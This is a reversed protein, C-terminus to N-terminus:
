CMQPERGEVGALLQRQIVAKLKSSGNMPIQQIVFEPRKGGNVRPHTRASDAIINRQLPIGPSSGTRDNFRLDELTREGLTDAVDHRRVPQLNRYQDQVRRKLRQGWSM